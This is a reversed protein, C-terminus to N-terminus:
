RAPEISLIWRALDRAQQPNLYGDPAYAPMPILGWTGQHGNLIADQLITLANPDHAYRQAIAAYAPGIKKHDIAHCSFCGESRALKVMDGASAAQAAAGHLACLLAACLLARRSM